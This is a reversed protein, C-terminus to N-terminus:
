LQAGTTTTGGPERIEVFWSKRSFTASPSRARRFEWPMLWVVRAFVRCDLWDRTAFISDPSGVTDSSRSTLDRSARAAEFRSRGRIM